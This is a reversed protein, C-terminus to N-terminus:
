HHDVNYSRLLLVSLTVRSTVVCANSCQHYAPGSMRTLHVFLYPFPLNQSRTLQKGSPQELLCTKKDIKNQIKSNVSIYVVHKFVSDLFLLNEITSYMQVASHGKVKTLTLTKIGSKFPQFMCLINICFDCARVRENEVLYCDFM